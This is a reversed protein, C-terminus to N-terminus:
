ESEIFVELATMMGELEQEVTELREEIITINASDATGILVWNNAGIKKIYISSFIGGLEINDTSNNINVGAEPTIIVSEEVMKIISIETNVAFNHTTDNPITLTIESTGGALLVKGADGDDLIYNTEILVSDPKLKAAGIEGVDLKWKAYLTTHNTITDTSFDWEETYGADKYWGDFTYLFKTPEQPPFIMAGDEIADYGQVPNGSMTNFSVAWATVQGLEEWFLLPGSIPYVSSVMRKSVPWNSTDIIVFKKSACSFQGNTGCSVYWQPDRPIQQIWDAILTNDTIILSYNQYTPKNVVATNILSFNNNNTRVSSLSTLLTEINDESWSIKLNKTAPLLQNEHFTFPM